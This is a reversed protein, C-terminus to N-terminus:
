CKGNKMIPFDNTNPIKFIWDLDKSNKKISDKFAYATSKIFSPFLFIANDINIEDGFTDKSQHPKIINLKIPSGHFLYKPNNIDQELYEKKM